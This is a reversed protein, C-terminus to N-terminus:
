LDIMNNNNFIQNKDSNIVLNKIWDMGINGKEKVLYMKHDKGVGHQHSITGNLDIIANSAAEKMAKWFQYLEDPNKKLRFIITTYLSSGNLYVHSIHTYVIVKENFKEAAKKIADEIKSKAQKIKDWTLCTELTDVGYGSDWLINRLYPTSFRNKEWNKGLKKCIFYPKYIGKYDKALRFIFKKSEKVEKSTGTFGSIMICFSNKYGKFNLYKLLYEITKKHGTSKAMELQIFTEEPFSLRIMSLNTKFSVAKKIFEIANETNEFFVGYFEELEPLKRIKVYAEYLIGM